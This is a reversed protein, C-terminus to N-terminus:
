KLVTTALFLIPRMFHKSYVAWRIIMCRAITNPLFILRPKIIGNIATVLVPMQTKIFGNDTNIYPEDDSSGGRFMYMFGGDDDFNMTM